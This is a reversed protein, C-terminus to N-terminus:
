ILDISLTKVEAGRMQRWYLVIESNYNRVEYFDVIKNRKLAELYNFDITLCAPVRVVALTMGLGGDIIMSKDMVGRVIPGPTYKKLNEIRLRYTLVKGLM